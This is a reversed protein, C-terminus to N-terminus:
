IGLKRRLNEIHKDWLLIEDEKDEPEVFETIMLSFDGSLEQKIIRLEFYYDTDEDDEWQLRVYDNSKLVLLDASETYDKWIFIYKNDRVTVDDAFWESLGFPTGITNWLINASTSKLPYELELREKEM